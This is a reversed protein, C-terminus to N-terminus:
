PYPNYLLEAEHEPGDWVKGNYSVRYTRVGHLQGNPWTRMGEGSEDRLKSYLASGEAFNAVQTDELRGPICLIM